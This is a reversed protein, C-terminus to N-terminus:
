RALPLQGPDAILSAFALEAAGILLRDGGLYAPRIELSDSPGPLATATAKELLGVGPRGSLAGLFGGLVIVEPDFTNIINRLAIALYHIQRDVEAVVAPDTTSALSSGLEDAASLPLGVVCLLSAQGVETELCGIAGCHCGVGNSNVLTHGFEGAYGSTGGFPRGDVIVGGGVGSAGGNLYVMTGTLPEAGWLSGAGFISEAQAGLSADNDAQM